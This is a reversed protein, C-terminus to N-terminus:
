LAKPLEGTIGLTLLDERKPQRHSEVANAARMAAGLIDFLELPSFRAKRGLLAADAALATM